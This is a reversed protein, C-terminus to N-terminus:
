PTPTSRSSSGGAPRRARRGQSTGARGDPLSRVLAGLLGRRGAHSARAVLRDFDASAARGRATRSLAALEHRASGCRVPDGLWEYALRNKQGCADCTVVVGRDDLELIAM